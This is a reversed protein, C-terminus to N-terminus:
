FDLFCLIFCVPLFAAVLGFLDCFHDTLGSGIVGSVICFCAFRFVSEPHNCEDLLAYVVFFVM